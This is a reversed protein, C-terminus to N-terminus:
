LSFRGLIEPWHNQPSKPAETVVWFQSLPHHVITVTHRATPGIPWSRGLFDVEHDANVRRALYIALHLDMLTPLPCARLVNRQEDLAKACAQDPSLGTTRCVTRNQRALERALLAQAPAYDTIKEYALLALLRKQFTGFRREIKGKAEPDPAVLHTVGLATLARQFESCPDLGDATSQHGFLALGDTYIVLPLGHTTFLRRFHQFHHWTTDTPVFVAGLLKRSHDDLTLLLTQKASAPWWQHISSDHQWLEGVQARQWRRRPKPNPAPTSVLLPFHTRAYAAVSKRDRQFAFRAMLEDAVLQYNPPRQLPLFAALFQRVDEPWLVHHNGGSLRPTFTSPHQLWLARLRFLHARSVNLLQAATATDVKGQNFTDLTQQLFLLTVRRPLQHKELVWPM